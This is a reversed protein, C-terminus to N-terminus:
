PTATPVKNKEVKVKSKKEKAKSSVNSNEYNPIKPQPKLESSTNLGNIFDKLFQANASIDPVLVEAGNITQNNYYGDVPIRMTEINNNYKYATIGLSLIKSLPVNTQTYSVLINLLQPLKLINTNKIKEAICKLVTRQRETREFDGNGVHRIRSYSLAQQGNLHQLGPGKLYTSKSGNVENIYKNIEKVEYEKVNIDIGGIKDVLDQFAHFDIIAYYQLDLGFNNNLTELTLEPGGISYATNIREMSKTNGIQVYLDRMLSSLKITKTNKDLTAIIISDTRGPDTATRSDVGFLVINEIGSQDDSSDTTSNTTNTKVITPTSRFYLLYGLYSCYAIVPLLICAILITIFLKIKKKKNHKKRTM